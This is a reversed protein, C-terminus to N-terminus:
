NEKRNEAGIISTALGFNVAEEANFYTDEKTLEKIEDISKGTRESIIECLKEQVELLDDLHAKIQHPKKGALNGGGFSPDHLMAKSNSYMERKDGALFLIAGMSAATGIVVTTVPAQINRIVDYVALGDSVSGGPSNIYFRIEEEPNEKNLFLLQKILSACTDSNVEETLFIERDTLLVDDVGLACYGRASEKIVNPTSTM